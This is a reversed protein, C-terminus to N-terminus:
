LSASPANKISLTGSDPHYRASHKVAFHEAGRCAAFEATAPANKTAKTFEHLGPM